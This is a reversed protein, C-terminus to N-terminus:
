APSAVPSLKDLLAVLEVIDIPKVLHHNFGAERSRRRDDEQGWGTVAILIADKGWPAERLHTAVEYGSMGPLGIDLLVVDPRFRGAVELGETGSYARETTHGMLELVMASSDASDQNDDIVLIRRSPSHPPAAPTAPVAPAPAAASADVERLPLRVEFRSGKGPGNSFARVSGGHLGVLQRVLSLGVGLGGQSRDVANDIQAFMTFVRDLMEPPIGIGNDSCTIVVENGHAGDEVRAKLEIRGGRPTYKAANNLLNLLVQNLRMADATLRVPEQPLDVALTHRGAEILPRSTQVATEVIAALEVSERRLELTGRSIRSVDLLDDVLRVIQALQREVMSHAEELVKRDAAFWMVQLANRIPALPNRLEHALVAIFEDKRRDAEKLALEARRRGSIDRAIKSAGVIRGAADLVPSVTLSVDVLTGDKRRHV